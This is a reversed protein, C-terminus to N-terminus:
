NMEQLMSKLRANEDLIIGLKLHLEKNETSYSDNDARLDKVMNELRVNEEFIVKERRIRMDRSKKAAENNKLRRAWYRDDKSDAAVHTQKRRKRGNVTEQNRGINDHINYLSGSDSSNETIFDQDVNPHQFERRMTLNVPYENDQSSPTSSRTSEGNSKYSDSFQQQIKDSDNFQQQQQRIQQQQDQIQQRPQSPQRNDQVSELLHAESDEAMLTQAHSAPQSPLVIPIIRTVSAGSPLGQQNNSDQHFREQHHEQHELAFHQSLDAVHQRCVPCRTKTPSQPPVVRINHEHLLHELLRTENENGMGCQPCGWPDTSSDPSRRKRSLPMTPIKEKINLDESSTQETFKSMKLSTRTEEDPYM